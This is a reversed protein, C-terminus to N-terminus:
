DAARLFAKFKDVDTNLILAEDFGVRELLARAATVEGVELPDHADSNVVIPCRLDMCLSLMTEYNRICNIRRDLKAFSSGNVELAVHCEKAAPVLRSYDLPIHDDDPHSVFFVKPHRMCAILDDTNKERGQDAYCIGHLGVIGYHLWKMYREPLSLSGGPLANIECGYLLEVGYLAKPARDLCTFYVPDATGPIGPGHETIGLLKLEKDAAAQAMERITGFAHGSALTHTHIDLEFRPLM